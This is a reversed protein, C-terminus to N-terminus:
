HSTTRTAAACRGAAARADAIPVAPASRDSPLEGKGDLQLLASPRGSAAGPCLRPDLIEVKGPFHPQHDHLVDRTTLAKPPASRNARLLAVKDPFPPHDRFVDRTTPGDADRQSKCRAIHRPRTATVSRMAGPTCAMVAPLPAWQTPAGADNRSRASRRPPLQTTKPLALQPCRAPARARLAAHDICSLPLASGKSARRENAAPQPLTKSRSTMSRVPWNRILNHLSRLM